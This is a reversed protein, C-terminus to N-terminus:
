ISNIAHIFVPLVDCGRSGVQFSQVHCPGASESEDFEEHDERDNRDQDRQQEGRHLLGAFRGPTGLAAALELLNRQGDV